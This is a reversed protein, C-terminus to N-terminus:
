MQTRENIKGEDIYLIRKALKKAEALHHTVLIIPIQWKEQIALLEEHAKSRTKEDLASFPEDLLLAEPETALARTLAVRQKEGGSIQHPYKEALHSIKLEQMISRAFAENKMGYAINKWVTFHPFLAYDQFLYAVKRKHTPLM